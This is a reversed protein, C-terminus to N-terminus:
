DQIHSTDMLRGMNDNGIFFSMGLECLSMGFRDIFHRFEVPHETQLDYAVLSEIDGAHLDTFWKLVTHAPRGPFHTFVLKTISSPPPPLVENTDLLDPWGDDEVGYLEGCTLKTLNTFNSIFATLASMRLGYRQDITLERITRSMSPPMAQAITDLHGSRDTADIHLAFSTVATFKHIHLLFHDLWVTMPKDSDGDDESDNDGYDDGQTSLPIGGEMSIDLARVHPFLTCRPNDLLPLLEHKYNWRMVQRVDLPIRAFVIERTICMWSRCVLSFAKLTKKDDRASNIILSFIELPLRPGKLRHIEQWLESNEQWLESNEQELVAIKNEQVAIKNEQAAMRIELRVVLAHLDGLTPTEASQVSHAAGYRQARPQEASDSFYDARSTMHLIHYDEEASDIPKSQEHIRLLYYLTPRVVSSSVIDVDPDEPKSVLEPDRSYAALSM